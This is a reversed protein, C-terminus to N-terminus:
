TTPHTAGLPALGSAQWMLWLEILTSAERMSGFDAHWEKPLSWLMSLDSKEILLTGFDAKPKICFSLLHTLCASSFLLFLFSLGNPWHTHFLFVCKLSYSFCFSLWEAMTLSVCTLAEAQPPATRTFFYLSVALTHTLSFSFLSMKEKSLNCVLFM